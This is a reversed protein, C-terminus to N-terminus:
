KEFYSLVLVAYEDGTRQRYGVYEGLKEGGSFFQQNPISVVDFGNTSIDDINVKLFGIKGSLIRSSEEYIPALLVCPGCWDAYFDIALDLNSYNIYHDLESRSKIIILTSEPVTQNNVVLFNTDGIDTVTIKSEDTIIVSSFYYAVGAELEDELTVLYQGEKDTQNITGTVLTCLGKGCLALEIATPKGIYNTMEIILERSDNEKVQTITNKVFSELHQISSISIDEAVKNDIRDRIKEIFTISADEAKFPLVRTLIGVAYDRNIVQSGEEIEDFFLSRPTALAEINRFWTSAETHYIEEDGLERLIWTYFQAFTM